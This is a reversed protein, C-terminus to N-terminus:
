LPPRQLPGPAGAPQRSTTPSTGTARKGVTRGRHPLEGLRTPPDSTPHDYRPNGPGQPQTVQKLSLAITGGEPWGNDEQWVKSKAVCMPPVCHRVHDCIWEFMCLIVLPLTISGLCGCVPAPSCVCGWVGWLSREQLGALGHHGRRPGALMSGPAPGTGASPPTHEPGTDDWGLLRSVGSIRFTQLRRSCPSLCAPQRSLGEM